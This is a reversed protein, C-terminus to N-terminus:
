HANALCPLPCVEAILIRRFANAISADVGVLDFDISRNSLREVRVALSQVPPSTVHPLSLCPVSRIFSHSIGLTTKRQTIDLITPRPSTRSANPTCASMANPISVRWASIIYYRAKQWNGMGRMRFLKDVAMWATGASRMAQSYLGGLAACGALALLYFM